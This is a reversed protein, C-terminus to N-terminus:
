TMFRKEHPLEYKPLLEPDNTPKITNLAVIASANANAM